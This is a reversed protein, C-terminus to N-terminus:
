ELHERAEVIETLPVLVFGDHPLNAIWPGLAAMTEPHPHGIAIATGKKRAVAEVERLQADVASAKQDDDLFVDRVAYPVDDAAAVKAGVSDAITRSDLFMLGREKLVGIVWQMGQLDATFRSGMHNNIGVYDSFRGLDWNLRRLVEQQSQGVALGNPGMDIHPNLPQMPVHVILEHGHRRAASTQEALDDAYTMFSLTVAAPLDIAKDTGPRDLGCDDIVIAVRPRNGIDPVTTANKLWPPETSPTQPSAPPLPQLVPSQSPPVAPVASEPPPIVSAPPAAPVPATSPPAAPIAAVAAPPHAPRAPREKRWFQLAAAGAIVVVLLAVGIATRHRGLGLRSHHARRRAPKAQKKRKGGLLRKLNAM